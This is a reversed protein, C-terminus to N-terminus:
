CAVILSLCGIWSKTSTSHDGDDQQSTTKGTWKHGKREVKQFPDRLDAKTSGSGLGTTGVDLGGWGGNDVGGIGLSAVCIAKSSAILSCSKSFSWLSKTSHTWNFILPAIEFQQLDYDSCKCILSNQLFILLCNKTAVLHLPSLM